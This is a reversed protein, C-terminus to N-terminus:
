ISPDRGADRRPIHPCREDSPPHRTRLEDDCWLAHTLASVWETMQENEFAVAWHETREFIIAIDASMLNWIKSVLPAANHKEVWREDRITRDTTDCMVSICDTLCRVLRKAQECAEPLRVAAEKFTRLSQIIGDLAEEPIFQILCRFCDARSSVDFAQRVMSQAANAISENPSIILMTVATATSPIRLADKILPSDENALLRIMKAAPSHLKEIAENALRMGNRLVKNNRQSDSTVWTRSSLRTVHSSISLAQAFMAIGRVSIQKQFQQFSEAVLLGCTTLSTLQSADTGSDKSRTRRREDALMYVYARIAKADRRSLISVLRQASRTAGAYAEDSTYQRDFAVKTIIQVHREVVKVVQDLYIWGDKPVTTAAEISPSEFIRCLVELAAEVSTSRIANDFRTKQAIDDLLKTFIASLCPGFVHFSRLSKLLPFLWGFLADKLSSRREADGTALDSLHKAFQDNDLADYLRAGAYGLDARNADNDDDADLDVARGKGKRDLVNRWMADDMKDLLNRFTRLVEIWHDGKDGLHGCILRVIDMKDGGGSLYQVFVSTPLLGTVISMGSWIASASDTLLPADDESLDIFASKTNRAMRDRRTLTELVELVDRAVGSDKDEWRQLTIQTRPGQLVSTAWTRSIADGYFLLYILGAPFAAPDQWIPAQSKVSELHKSFSELVQKNTYLRHDLLINYTLPTPLSPPTGNSSSTSRSEYLALTDKVRQVEKAKLSAYWNKVTDENWRRRLYLDGVKRQAEGWGRVCGTCHLLLRELASKWEQVKGAPKYGVLRVCFIAVERLADKRGRAKASSSSSSGSPQDAAVDPAQTSGDEGELNADIKGTRSCFWHHDEQSLIFELCLQQVRKNLAESTPDKRWEELAALVAAHDQSYPGFHASSLATTSGSASSGADM